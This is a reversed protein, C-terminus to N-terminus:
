KEVISLLKEPPVVCVPSHEAVTFKEDRSVIYDANDRKACIAVLADEFEDMPLLLAKTCDEEGVPIVRFVTMLNTIATRTKADGLVKKAVYYIDTVSNATIIGEIEDNAVNLLVQKAINGGPRGAILADLIVNTDFVVKM